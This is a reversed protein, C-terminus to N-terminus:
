AELHRVPAPPLHDLPRRPVVLGLGRLLLLGGALPRLIKEGGQPDGRLPSPGIRLFQQRMAFTLSSGYVQAVPLRFVATARTRTFAPVPLTRTLSLSRSSYKLVVLSRLRTMAGSAATPASFAKSMKTRACPPPVSPWDPAIEMPIARM